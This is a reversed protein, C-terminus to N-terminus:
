LELPLKSQYFAKFKEQIGDDTSNTKDMLATFFRARRIVGKELFGFNLRHSIELGSETQRLSLHTVDGPFAALLFHTSSDKLLASIAWCDRSNRDILNSQKQNGDQSQSLNQFYDLDASFTTSDIPLSELICGSPDLNLLSVEAADITSRATLDLSEDLLSTNASFCWQLSGSINPSSEANVNQVKFDFGTPRNEKYHLDLAFQNDRCIVPDDTGTRIGAPAGQVSLISKLSPILSGAFNWDTMGPFNQSTDNCNPFQFRFGFQPEQWQVSNKNESWAM